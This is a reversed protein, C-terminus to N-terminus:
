AVGESGHPLAKRRREREAKKGALYRKLNESYFPNTADCKLAKRQEYRRQRENM